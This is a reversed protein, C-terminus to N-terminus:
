ARSVELVEPLSPRPLDFAEALILRAAIDREWAPRGSPMALIRHGDKRELFYGTFTRDTISSDVLEVGHDALLQPLPTDLLPNPDVMTSDADANSLRSERHVVTM